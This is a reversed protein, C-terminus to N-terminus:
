PAAPQALLPGPGAPRHALGALPEAAAGGAALRQQLKALGACTYVVRWRSACCTCRWRRHRRRCRARAAAPRGAVLHRAGPRVGAAAGAPQGPLLPEPLAHRRHAAPLTFLLFFLVIAVRYFLGLTVLLALAALVGFALYMAWPPGAKVWAFGWYKFHFTPQVFFRDIWGNAFFRGASVLMLLGFLVRFAALSAPDIPRFLRPEIRSLLHKM